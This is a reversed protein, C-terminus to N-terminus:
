IYKPLCSSLWLPHPRAPLILSDIIIVLYTYVGVYRCSQLAIYVTYVNLSVIHCTKDHVGGYHTCNPCLWCNFTTHSYCVFPWKLACLYKMGNWAIGQRVLRLAVSIQMYIQFSYMCTHREWYCSVPLLCNCSKLINVSYIHSMVVLTVMCSYSVLWM